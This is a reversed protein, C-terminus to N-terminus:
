RPNNRDREYSMGSPINSESGQSKQTSNPARAGQGWTPMTRPKLILDQNSTQIYILYHTLEKKLFMLIFISVLSNDKINKIADFFEAPNSNNGKTNAKINWEDQASLNKRKASAHLVQQTHEEEQKMERRLEEHTKPKNENQVKRVKWSEKRMDLIDQIMFRVRSSTYPPKNDVISQLRLFYNDMDPVPVKSDKSRKDKEKLSRMHDEFKSGITRLLTCLCELSEDDETNLLNHLCDCLILWSLLNHMYLEGIFRILGLWRKRAKRKEEDLEAEMVKKREPDDADEIDKMRSSIDINKYMDSSYEDQCKQLLMRRFEAPAKAKKETENSNVEDEQVFIQLSSLHKCVKAYEVCFAPESLAKDFILCLIKELREKTDISLSEIQKILDDFKQPTLKNLVGRFRRLLEETVRDEKDKDVDSGKIIAPKWANEVKHLEIDDQNM